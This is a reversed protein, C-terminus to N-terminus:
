AAVAPDPPAAIEDLIRVHEAVVDEWRRRALTEDYFARQRAYLDDRNELAWEIKRAVARWDYPDFLTAERIDPDVLIERTVEIDGMVAPTGVSLAETFTFPMGGESLSPNVALDALRYFAALQQESLDTLCLM